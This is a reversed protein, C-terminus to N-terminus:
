ENFRVRKKVTDNYETPQNIIPSPYYTERTKYRKYLMQGIYIVLIIILFVLIYYISNSAAGGVVPAPPPPPDNNAMKGYFFGTMMDGARQFLGSNMVTNIVNSGVTEVEPILAEVEPLIEPILEAVIAM